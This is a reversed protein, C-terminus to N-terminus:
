QVGNISKILAKLIGSFSVLSTYLTENVSKISTTSSPSFSAAILQSSSDPDWTATITLTSTSLGSASAVSENYGQSDTIDDGETLGTWSATGGRNHSISVAVGNDPVSLNVSPPAGTNSDTDHATKSLGTARYLHIDASNMAGSFVVVVDGTTGTPVDAIGIGLGEYGYDGNTNINITASVGAVTISSITKSTPGTFGSALVIIQRDSAPTGLGQSAFTYTILNTADSATGLYTLSVADVRLPFLSFIFAFILTIYLIKKM